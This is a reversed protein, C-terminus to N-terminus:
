DLAAADEVLVAFLRGVVEEVEEVEVVTDIM